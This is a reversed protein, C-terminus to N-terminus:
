KVSLNPMLNIDLLTECAKLIYCSVEKRIDLVCHDNLM